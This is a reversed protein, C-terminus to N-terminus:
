SAWTLFASPLSTVTLISALKLTVSVILPWPQREGRLLEGRHPERQRRPVTAGQGLSALSSVARIM